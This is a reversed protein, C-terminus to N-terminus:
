LKFFSDRSYLERNIDTQRLDAVFKNIPNHSVRIPRNWEKRITNETILHDKLYLSKGELGYITAYEEEETQLNINEFYRLVHILEHIFMMFYTQEDETILMKLDDKLVYKLFDPDSTVITKRFGGFRFEFTQGIKKRYKEFVLIPNKVMEKTDLFSTLNSIKTTKKLKSDM